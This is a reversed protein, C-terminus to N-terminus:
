NSLHDYTNAAVFAASSFVALSAVLALTASSATILTSASFDPEEVVSTVSFMLVIFYQLRKRGLTQFTKQLGM